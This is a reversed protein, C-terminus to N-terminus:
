RLVAIKQKYQTLEVSDPERGVFASVYVYQLVTGARKIEAKAARIADRKRTFLFGGSACSGQPGSAHRTDQDFQYNRRAIGDVEFTLLDTGSLLRSRGIRTPRHHGRM